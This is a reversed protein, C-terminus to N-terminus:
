FSFGVVNLHPGPLSPPTFQFGFIILPILPHTPFGLGVQSISDNKIHTLYGPHLRRKLPTPSIQVMLLCVFVPQAKVREWSVWQWLSTAVKESVQTPLGM